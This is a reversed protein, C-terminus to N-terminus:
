SEMREYRSIDMALSINFYNDEPKSYYVAPSHLGYFITRATKYLGSGGESISQEKYKGEYIDKIKDTVKNNMAEEDVRSDLNNRINFVIVKDDDKFLWDPLIDQYGKNIKNYYVESNLYPKIDIDICLEDM